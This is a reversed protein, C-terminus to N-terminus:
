QPEDFNIDHLYFDSLGRINNSLEFHSDGAFVLQYKFRYPEENNNVLYIKLKEVM